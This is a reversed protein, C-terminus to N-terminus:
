AAPLLGLEALSVHDHPAVVVHDLVPVGQLKGVEVMRRTLDIDADGPAADGSPHNHGLIISHAGLRVAPRFVERPHVDVQALSGIAVVQAEIVRQRANLLLVVFYEQGKRGIMERIFDAVDPPARLSRGRLKARCASDCLRTLAFAAHIREAQKKTAGLHILADFSAESLGEGNPYAQLIREATSQSVGGAGRLAELMQEQSGHLRVMDNAVRTNFPITAILM